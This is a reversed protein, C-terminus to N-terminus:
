SQIACSAAIHRASASPAARDERAGAGVSRCLSHGLRFAATLALPIQAHRDHQRRELRQHPLVRRTVRAGTCHDSKAPPAARAPAGLRFTSLQEPPARAPSAAAAVPGRLSTLGARAMKDDLQRGLECFGRKSDRSTWWSISSSWTVRAAMSPRAASAVRLKGKRRNRIQKPAFWNTTRNATRVASRSRMHRACLAVGKPLCGQLDYYRLLLGCPALSKEFNRRMLSDYKSIQAIVFNEEVPM